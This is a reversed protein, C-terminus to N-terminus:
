PRVAFGTSFTWASESIGSAGSRNSRLAGFNVEARGGAFPLGFGGSWTNEEVANGDSSFPLTRWRGGARLNMASSGFRPGVVDAGVGLDLGSHTRLTPSLDEVNAWTDNAVRVSFAAGRVGLYVVSLGVHDPARASGIKDNVDYASLAGGRRLTVGIAAIRPWFAHAGLTVANGGFSLTTTQTDSRFRASDDFMRATLMLDRGSYVHGAVGIRLWPTAAFAVAVRLDAVSGDSRQLVESGLTDTGVVQTDRTVTAWTRDFLTSASVGAAWRSGMTLAGMFLPFRVVSTRQSQGGVHLERFEPDAQMFVVPNRLMALAAPNLPSLPDVEGNAGGQSRAATSLQGPPYGLGQTSLTGQAQAGSALLLALVFTAPAFRPHRM